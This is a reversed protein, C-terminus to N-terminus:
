IANESVLEDKYAERGWGACFPAPLDAEGTADRGMGFGVDVAECVPTLFPVPSLAICVGMLAVLESLDDSRRSQVAYSVEHM